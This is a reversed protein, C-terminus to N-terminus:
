QVRHKTYAVGELVGLKACADDVIVGVVYTELKGEIVIEVAHSDEVYRVVVGAVRRRIVLPVTDDDPLREHPLPPAYRAEHLPRNALVAEPDGLGEFALADLKGNSGGYRYAMDLRFLDNGRGDSRRLEWQEWQRDTLRTWRRTELDLSWDDASHVLDERGGADVSSLKGGCVVISRGDVSLAATHGSIWGPPAGETPVAHIAFTRTDLRVVPTSGPRRRGPYSLNGIVFVDDGVLTATHADTPEFVDYPYGYVEVNGAADEVLVDNYIFFDPDYYDEHEGAIRVVRGDGLETRSQGFRMNCWAPGVGLSTPGEFHQNAQYASLGSARALWSWVANTM